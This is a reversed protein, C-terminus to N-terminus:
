WRRRVRNWYYLGNAFVYYGTQAMQKIIPLRIVRAKWTETPSNEWLKIFANIGIYVQGEDSLHLYKRVVELKEDIELVVHNETHIDKWQIACATSREMQTNIGERCVLCASNYYVKLPQKEVEPM